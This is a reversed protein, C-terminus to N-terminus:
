IAGSLKQLAPHEFTDINRGGKFAINYLEQQSMSPWAPEPFNGLAIEGEYYGGGRGEEQRSKLKIWNDIANKAVVLASENWSNKRDDTSIKIPWFFLAGQRTIALCLYAFFYDVPDLHPVIHPMVQYLDDNKLAIFAM